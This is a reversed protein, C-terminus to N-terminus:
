GDITLMYGRGRHSHIRPGGPLADASLRLKRRLNSIHTDLRRQKPDPTTDLSAAVLMDRSVLNGVHRMLIALLNTETATLSSQTEGNRAILRHMDLRLPGTRLVSSLATRDARQDLHQGIWQRILDKKGPWPLATAAPMLWVPLLTLDSKPGLYLTSPPTSSSQRGDPVSSWDMLLGHELVLIDLSTYRLHWMADAGQSALHLSAPAISSFLPLLEALSGASAALLINILSPSFPM